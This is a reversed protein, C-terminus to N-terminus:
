DEIKIAEIKWSDTKTVSIDVGIKGSAGFVALNTSLRKESDKFSIRASLHDGIAIYEIEGIQDHIAKNKMVESVIYDYGESQRVFVKLTEIAIVIAIFITISGIRISTLLKDGFTQDIKLSKSSLATLLKARNDKNTLWVISCFVIVTATILHGNSKYVWKSNSFSIAIWIILGVIIFHGAKM